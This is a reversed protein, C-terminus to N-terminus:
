KEVFSTTSILRNHNNKGKLMGSVEFYYGYADDPIEASVLGEEITAPKVHITNALVNGNVYHIPETTYILCAEMHLFDDPIDVEFQVMKGFGQPEEKIAILPLKAALVSDAFRFVEESKWAWEHAHRLDFQISLAGGHKKTALYSKSNSKFCFAHDKVGCVWLIPFPVEGINKTACWQEKFDDGRFLNGFSMSEPAEELFACGYVPIAFAYRKDYTIALSTIVGGWSVGTIGIKENDIRDDNLLINHALITDSIAHYMWQEEKPLDYTKLQDNDPGGVFGDELLEGYLERTYKEFDGPESGALGKCDEAPFFGTTDMAIAAYGRENWIKVWHAYAHGGGGHVLVMAPVKENEKMEPFGIYGFVKTRKGQYPAGEFCIAKVGQWGTEEKPDFTPVYKVEPVIDLYKEISM